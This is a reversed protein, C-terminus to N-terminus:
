EESGGKGEFNQKKELLEKESEVEWIKWDIKSITELKQRFEPHDYYYFSSFVQPYEKIMETVHPYSKLSQKIPLGGARSQISPDFRILHSYEQFIPSSPLPSLLSMQTVAKKLRIDEGMSMLTDYFEELSSFPFGWIYSTRVREFDYTVTKRIVERAQEITHGKHLKQLVRNSGSEVGYFLQFCGTESLKTLLEDDMLTIKGNCTYPLDVGEGRIADIIDMARSKQIVFTDDLFGLMISDDAVQLVEEVINEVSRYEMHRQWISHASCFGCDYPCGRASMICALRQYDAFNVHHYAPFPLSDLDKIRERPPTTIVKGNDRYVIGKVTDLPTGEQLAEMLEVTTYEGEGMVIVDVPYEELISGGVDTPAPGGLIVLTDPHEEKLKVVAGLVTPLANCIVSIGVIDSTPNMFSYFENPDPHRTPDHLQYDRFDVSFGKEELISVIRLPGIPLGPRYEGFGSNLILIDSM